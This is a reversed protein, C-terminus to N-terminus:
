ICKQNTASKSWSLGSLHPALWDRNLWLLPLAAIICHNFPLLAYCAKRKRKKKLAGCGKCWCLLQIWFDGGPLLFTMAKVAWGHLAESREILFYWKWSSLTCCHLFATVKCCPSYARSLKIHGERGINYRHLFRLGSGAPYHEGLGARRCAKCVYVATILHPTTRSACIMMKTETEKIEIELKETNRHFDKWELMKYCEEQGEIM